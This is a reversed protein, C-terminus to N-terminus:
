RLYKTVILKQFDHREKITRMVAALDEEFARSEEETGAFKPNVDFGVIWAGKDCDGKLHLTVAREGPKVGAPMTIDPGSHFAKLLIGTLACMVLTKKLSEEDIGAWPTNPMKSLRCLM